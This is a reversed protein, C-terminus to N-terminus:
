WDGGFNDVGPDGGDGFDIGDFDDQQDAFWDGRDAGNVMLNNDGQEMMMGDQPFEGEGDQMQGLEYGILGGGVAGLAGAAGASM